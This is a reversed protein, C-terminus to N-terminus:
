VLSRIKAVYAALSSEEVGPATNLEIITAGNRDSWAVDVGAFDLGLATVAQRAMDCVQPPVPRTDLHHFAFCWGRLHSRIYKDASDNHGNKKLKEQQFIVEDKFVHIRFEREKKVYKVYFKHQGVTAEKQYVVIGRGQSGRDQDRGLVKGRRAWDQAVAHDRTYEVTPVGARKLAEFTKTKSSAIEVAEPRNLIPVGRLVDPLGYNGWNIVIDGRVYRYQSGQRKIIRGDLGEQIGWASQSAKDYPYIWVKPRTYSTRSRQM